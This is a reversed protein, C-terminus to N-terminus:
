IVLSSGTNWFRQFCACIFWIFISLFILFLIFIITKFIPCLFESRSPTQFTQSLTEILASSQLHLCVTYQLLLMMFIFYFNYRWGGASQPLGGTWEQSTSAWLINLGGVFWLVWLVAMMWCWIWRNLLYFSGHSSQIISLWYIFVSYRPHM